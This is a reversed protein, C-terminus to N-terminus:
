FSHSALAIHALNEKILFAAQDETKSHQQFVRRNRELWVNWWTVLLDRVINKRSVVPSLNCIKEWWEM